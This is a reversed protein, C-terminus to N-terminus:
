EEAVILILKKCQRAKSEIIAFKIVEFKDETQVMSVMIETIMEDIEAVQEDWRDPWSYPDYIIRKIVNLRRRLKGIKSTM